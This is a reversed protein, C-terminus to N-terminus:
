LHYYENELKQIQERPFYEERMLEKFDDWTTTNAVKIGLMQVQANWWTLAGDELTGSAFKVMDGAPCNCMSFASEDKEFWHLLGVAGETGSITQPKCDMVDQFHLRASQESKPEHTSRFSFSHVVCSHSNSYVCLSCFWRFTFKTGAQQTALAEAVRTNILDMFEAQTMVINGRGGGRGSM